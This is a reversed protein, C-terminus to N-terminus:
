TSSTGAIEVCRALCLRRMHTDGTTTDRRRILFERDPRMRFLGRGLRTERDDLAIGDVGSKLRRPGIFEPALTMWEADLAGRMYRNDDSVQFSRLLKVDPYEASFQKMLMIRLAAPMAREYGDASIGDDFERSRSVRGTGLSAVELLIAFANM